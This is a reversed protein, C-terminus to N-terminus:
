FVVSFLFLFLDNCVLNDFLETLFIHVLLDAPIPFGVGYPDVM